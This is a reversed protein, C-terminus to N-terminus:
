DLNYTIDLQILCKAFTSEFMAFYRSKPDTKRETYQVYMGEDVETEKFFMLCENAPIENGSLILKGGFSRDKEELIIKERLEM